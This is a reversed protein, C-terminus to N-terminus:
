PRREYKLIAIIDLLNGFFIRRKELTTFPISCLVSYLFGLRERQPKTLTDSSHKGM